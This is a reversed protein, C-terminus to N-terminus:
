RMLAAVVAAVSRSRAADSTSATSVRSASASRGSTNRCTRSRSAIMASMAAERAAPPGRAPIVSATLFLTSTAPIGVVAAHGPNAETGSCSATATARRRAAPATTTPTVLRSWNAVPNTPM